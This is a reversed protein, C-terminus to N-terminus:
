PRKQLIYRSHNKLPGRIVGFFRVGIKLSLRRIKVDSLTSEKSKSGGKLHIEDCVPVKEQLFPFINYIAYISKESRNHRFFTFGRLNM